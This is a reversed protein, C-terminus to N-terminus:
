THKLIFPTIGKSGWKYNHFPAQKLVFFVEGRDMCILDKTTM